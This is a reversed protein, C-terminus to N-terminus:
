VNIVFFVGSDFLRHLRVARYLFGDFVNSQALGVCKEEANLNSGLGEFKFIKKEPKAMLKLVADIIM